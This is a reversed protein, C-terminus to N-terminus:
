SPSSRGLAMKILGTCRKRFPKPDKPDLIAFVHPRSYPQFYQTLPYREKVLYGPLASIDRVLDIWYMGAEYDCASPLMGNVLHEYQIWPFNIGCRVALLSSLNHRGNVEMLKYVGDRADRKFETCAYGDFGMAKLIKRGPEVVEPVHASVNCCPSGTDRPANRIKAATFEVLAEGGWSYSNYNM